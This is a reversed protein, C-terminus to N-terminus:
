SLFYTVRTVVGMVRSVGRGRPVQGLVKVDVHGGVGVDTVQVLGDRPTGLGTEELQGLTDSTSDLQDLLGLSGSALLHTTTM